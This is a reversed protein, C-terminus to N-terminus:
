LYPELEIVRDMGGHGEYETEDEAPVPGGSSLRLGGHCIKEIWCVM